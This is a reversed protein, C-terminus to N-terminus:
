LFGNPIDETHLTIVYPIKASRAAHMAVMLVNLEKGVRAM